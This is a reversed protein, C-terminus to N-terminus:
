SAKQGKDRKPTDENEREGLILSPRWFVSWNAPPAQPTRATSGRRGVAPCQGSRCRPPFHRDVTPQINTKTAFPCTCIRCDQLPSGGKPPQKLPFGSPPDGALEINLYQSFCLDSQAGIGRPNRKQRPNGKLGVWCQNEFVHAVHAM